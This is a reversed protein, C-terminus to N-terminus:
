SRSAACCLFSSRESAKSSDHPLPSLAAIPSIARLRKPAVSPPRKPPSSEASVRLFIQSTYPQPSTSWRVPRCLSTHNLCNALSKSPIVGAGSRSGTMPGSSISCSRMRRIPATSWRRSRVSPKSDYAPLPRSAITPMMGFARKQEAIPAGGGGGGLRRTVAVGRGGERM